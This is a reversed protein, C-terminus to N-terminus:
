VCGGFREANALATNPIRTLSLLIKLCKYAVKEELPYGFCSSVCICYLYVSPSYLGCGGVRRVVNCRLNYQQYVCWALLVCLFFVVSTGTYPHTLQPWWAGQPLCLWLLFYQHSCPYGWGVNLALGRLGRSSCFLFMCCHSGQYAPLM